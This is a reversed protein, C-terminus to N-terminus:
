KLKKAELNVGLGALLADIEADAAAGDPDGKLALAYAAETAKVAVAYQPDAVTMPRRDDEPGVVITKQHAMARDALNCLRAYGLGRLADASGPVNAFQALARDLMALTDGPPIGWVAALTYATVGHVWEGTALLQVILQTREDPTQARRSEESLDLTPPM